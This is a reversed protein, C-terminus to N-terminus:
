TLKKFLKELAEKAKAAEDAEKSDFRGGSWEFWECLNRRDKDVVVDAKPEKCANNYRNDYHRCALCVHLDNRCFPCSENFGVARSVDLAKGCHPCLSQSEM